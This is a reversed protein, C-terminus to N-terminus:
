NLERVWINRFSVSPGPDGHAQLMIPRPGHPVYEPPGVFRTQGALEFSDQVLVGNFFVTVRAPTLLAGDADFRPARWIVDYAQWEGPPRGPNALPISQKYVSGAMGNVYTANEFSELIQVEYGGGGVKALFLGSNGRGQGEGLADAPVRWEIHLQYDTFTRTTEINGVDNDVTVTGDSVPWSAASGDRTNIWEDLATGDFLVIADSPPPTFPGEGVPTVVPPIPEWVETAEWPPREQPDQAGAIAPLAMLALAAFSIPGVNKILLSRVFRDGALHTM